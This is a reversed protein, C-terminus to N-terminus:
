ICKHGEGEEKEKKGLVSPVLSNYTWVRNDKYDTAHANLPFIHKQGTTVNSM